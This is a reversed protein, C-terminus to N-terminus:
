TQGKIASLAEHMDEDLFLVSGPAKRFPCGFSRSKERGSQQIDFETALYFIAEPWVAHTKDVDPFLVVFEEGGYRAVLDDPRKLLSGVSQAVTILIFFCIFVTFVYPIFSM